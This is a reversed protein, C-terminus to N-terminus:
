SVSISGNLLTVYTTASAGATIRINSLLNGGDAQIEISKGDPLDLSSLVNSNDDLQAITTVDGTTLVSIGRSASVLGVQGGTLEKFAVTQNINLSM